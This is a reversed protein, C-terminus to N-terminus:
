GEGSGRSRYARPSLGQYRAFQKAFYSTNNFGVMAAIQQIQLNTRELLAAAQRIRERNVFDMFTLGMERHFQASLYDPNVGLAAATGKVTLNDTLHTKIYTVALNILPKLNSYDKERALQCYERLIEWFLKQVENQDKVREIRRAIRDSVHDLRYPHIGCDELAHRLQTNMVICMNQSNRLPDPNRSSFDTVQHGAKRLLSYALSLNGQKVAETIASSVEYTREVRRIKDLEEYTEAVVLLDHDPGEWPLEQERYPVPAPLGMLRKGLLSAMQHLITPAIVPLDRCFTLIQQQVEPPMRNKKFFQRAPEPAFPESLCPGLILFCDQKGDRLVGYRINLIGHLEYIWGPEMARFLRVLSREVRPHLAVRTDLRHIVSTIEKPVNKVLRVELDSMCAVLNQIFDLDKYM